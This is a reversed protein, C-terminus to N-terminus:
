ANLRFDGDVNTLTGMGNQKYVAAYPLPEGTAADVVRGTVTLMEDQGSAWATWLLLLFFLLRRM